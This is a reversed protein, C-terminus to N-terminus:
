EVTSSRPVCRRCPRDAVIGLERHSHVLRLRADALGATVAADVTLILLGTWLGAIAGEPRELVAMDERKEVM